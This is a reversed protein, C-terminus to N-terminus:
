KKAKTEDFMSDPQAGTKTEVIRLDLKYGTRQIV